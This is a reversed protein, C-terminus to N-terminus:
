EVTCVVSFRSLNDIAEDVYLQPDGSYPYPISSFYRLFSEATGRGKESQIYDELSLENKAWNSAKFTNYAYESIWRDVPNRLITVFHWKKRYADVLKPRCYVHGTGFKYRDLALHYCLIIQRAEVKPLAFITSADKAAELRVSFNPILVAQYAPYAQRAIARSLSTGACKPVHCFFIRKAKGLLSANLRNRQLAILDIYSM